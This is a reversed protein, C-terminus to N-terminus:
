INNKCDDCWCGDFEEEKENLPETDKDWDDLDNDLTNNEVMNFAIPPQGTTVVDNINITQLTTGYFPSTSPYTLLKNYVDIDNTAFVIGDCMRCPLGTFTGDNKISKTWEQWKVLDIRGNTLLPTIDFKVKYTLSDVPDM